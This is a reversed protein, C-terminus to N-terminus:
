ETLVKELATKRKFYLELGEQKRDVLQEYHKSTFCLKTVGFRKKRSHLSVMMKIMCSLTATLMLELM